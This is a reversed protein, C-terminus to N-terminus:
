EGGFVDLLEAGLLSRAGRTIEDRFVIMDLATEITETETRTGLVAKAADIKSQHLRLNKKRALENPASTRKRPDRRTRVRATPAAPTKKTAM